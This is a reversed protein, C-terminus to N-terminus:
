GFVVNKVLVKVSEADEATLTGADVMQQIIKDVEETNIGAPGKTYLLQLADATATLLKV